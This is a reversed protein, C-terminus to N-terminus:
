VERHLLIWLELGVCYGDKDHYTYTQASFELKPQIIESTTTEVFRSGLSSYEKYLLRHTVNLRKYM